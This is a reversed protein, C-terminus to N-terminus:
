EIGLKLTQSKGKDKGTMVIACMESFHPREPAPRCVIGCGFAMSYNEKQFFYCSRILKHLHRHRLKNCNFQHATYNFLPTTYIRNGYFFFLRLKKFTRALWVFLENEIKNKEM